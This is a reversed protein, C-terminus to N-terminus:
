HSRENAVYLSIGLVLLGVLTMKIVKSPKNLNAVLCSANGSTEDDTDDDTDDDTSESESESSHSSSSSSSSDHSPLKKEVLSKAETQESTKPSTEKPEEKAPTDIDANDQKGFEDRLTTKQRKAAPTNEVLTASLEKEKEVTTKLKPQKVHLIGNEFKASIKSRDCNEVVPFEKLFRQWKTPGIPRQGSIKLTGTSTLVVRLQEKKFGHIDIHITDFHEGHVLKSSPVFDEYAQTPTTAAKSNM